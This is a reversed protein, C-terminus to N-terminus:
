GFLRLSTVPKPLDPLVRALDRDPLRLHRELVQALVTRFDTTVPLDRGEYLQDQALGRWDGHVKGGRVGGGIVWMVNGHGHDTGGTGNQRVTRGFESVVVIQTDSLQPGLGQALAALGEALPVLNNALTGKAAGENVHTDWGGLAVFALQTNEDRRLLMSLHRADAPFGKPSPAGGDAMHREDALANMVDHHADRGEQFAKGLVKDHEYLRRFADGVAPRDLADPRSAADGNAVNAVDMRGSFIRALVPGICIGRTPSAQGPLVALLRNLWGDPTAKRGPTASELYDQADFHSRTPDPSGSAHVFALQGEHWLPLLPALAPHLGFYGDLDLVGGDGGPRGLAISDRAHYYGADAHPVVVNLGDVAGRLIVVVLKRSNPLASQQAWGSMPASLLGAAGLSAHLFRRRDM